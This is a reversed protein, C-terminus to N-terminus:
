VAIEMLTINQIMGNSPSCEATVGSGARYYLAYTVASTSAPSALHILSIPVDFTIANGGRYIYGMGKTSHGINSGDEYLTYNANGVANIRMVSTILVLVKSTADTPTIDATLNSAVFTSSTTSSSSTSTASVVQLVSGTPMQASTLGTLSSGSGAFTTATLLGAQDLTAVNSGDSQFKIDNGSGDANLTLDEASSKITSV